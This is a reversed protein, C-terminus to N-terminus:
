YLDRYPPNCSLLWRRPLSKLAFLIHPSSSKVKDIFIRVMDGDSRKLSRFARGFYFLV